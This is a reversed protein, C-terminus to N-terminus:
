GNNTACLCQQLETPQLLNFRPLLRNVLQLFIDAGVALGASRPFAVFFGTTVGTNKFDFAGVNRKVLRRFLIKILMIELCFQRRYVREFLLPRREFRLAARERLSVFGRLSFVHRYAGRLSVGIHHQEAFPM